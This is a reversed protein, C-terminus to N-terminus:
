KTEAEMHQIRNTKGCHLHFRLSPYPHFQLTGFLKWVYCAPFMQMISLICM